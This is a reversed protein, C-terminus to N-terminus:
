ITQFEPLKFIQDLVVGIRQKLAESLVTNTPDAVYDGYQITWEFDPLGNLLLVQLATKQTTSLGKPCFVVVLDEIIQLSDYPNSLNNVLNLLDIPLRNGDVDLGGYLSLYSALDFRLKIYSSNIWNKTFNPAQYYANWGGVNPPQLYNMGLTSSLWYLGLYMRNNVSLDFGPETESTNLMSFVCELPNKIIAGRMSIDYFHASKLLSEVVPLVEYNNAVLLNAMEVIVTTEVDTTIDYNAFWRYLKRCIHKATEAQQFIIDVYNEYEAADANAITANGFRASLTKATTDHLTVDFVSTVSTATDSQFGSVTWGTLIKSSESIDLETYNTYDGVAVQEGKGISYLELLERAYNENPSYKNNAAGNLFVLMSPNITMDKVLQKFNGLAHTQILRMYDYSARSDFTAEAAFHNQWFLCMKEFVSVGEKNMREMMWAALSERRANEVKQADIPATPYVSNIWTSGFAAITEDASHSLPETFGPITLLQTVTADMGATVAGQIESFTAGFMSRRLLHAAEASTWVGTYPTLSYVLPEQVSEEPFSNIEM